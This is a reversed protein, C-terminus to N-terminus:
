GSLVRDRRILLRGTVLAEVVIEMLRHEFDFERNLYMSLDDIDIQNLVWSEEFHGHFSVIWPSDRIVGYVLVSADACKFPDPLKIASKSCAAYFLALICHRIGM